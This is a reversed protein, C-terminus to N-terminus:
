KHLLLICAFSFSFKHAINVLQPSMPFKWMGTLELKLGVFGSVSLLQSRVIFLPLPIPKIINSWGSVIFSKQSYGAFPIGAFSSKKLDVFNQISM